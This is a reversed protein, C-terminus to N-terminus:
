HVRMKRFYEPIDDGVWSEKTVRNWLARLVPKDYDFFAFYVNDGWPNRLGEFGNRIYHNVGDQLTSGEHVIVTINIDFFYDFDHPVNNEKLHISALRYKM